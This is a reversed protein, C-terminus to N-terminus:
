SILTDGSLRSTNMLFSFSTSSSSFILNTSNKSSIYLTLAYSADSEVKDLIPLDTSAYFPLSFKVGILSEPALFYLM